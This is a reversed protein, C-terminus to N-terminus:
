ALTVTGSASDAFQTPRNATDYSTGVTSGNAYTTSVLRELADYSHYTQQSVRSNVDYVNTVMLKGRKDQVTLMNHNADYTYAEFKGAPDTAKILRGDIDYGYSLTRGLNDNAQTIRDSANYIFQVYRGSPSTIQTLNGVSDREIVLANGFRDRIERVAGRRPNSNREEDAFIFTTGDKLKLEWSIGVYRITSGFYKAGGSSNQYVADSFSTGASIRDYRVRGGDPLILEQYTYPWTDGVIFYDYSLNPGTM